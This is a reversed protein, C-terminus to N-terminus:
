QVQSNTDAYLQVCRKACTVTRTHNYKLETQVFVVKSCVTVIYSIYCM